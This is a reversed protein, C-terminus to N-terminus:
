PNKSKEREYFVWSIISFGPIALIPCLWYGINTDGGNKCLKLSEICETHLISTLFTLFVGLMIALVISPKYIKGEKPYACGKGYYASYSLGILVTCFPILPSLDM